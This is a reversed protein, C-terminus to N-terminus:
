YSFPWIRYSAKFIEWRHNVGRPEFIVFLLIILGFVFAPLGAVIQNSLLPFAGEVLPTLLISVVYDLIRVVIVGVVAGTISGMGGLIIMGLFWVSTVLEFHTPGVNRMWHAWLCGSIGAFFTCVFFALVKYFFINIGLVEAALDNDRIAVWARGIQTRVLNKAFIVLICTIPIIVYFMEIQSILKHGFITMPNVRLSHIGGTFDPRIEVICWPIIFQAALTSMALYFGKVRVAPLGFLLGVVGAILGSLILSGFFPFGARTMWAGTYAGVMMFAAQGLSIQGCYGTLLMLGVASIVYIGVLNIIHIFSTAYLPFAFLAIMGLAFIVWHAKTRIISMDQAYNINHIGAPYRM